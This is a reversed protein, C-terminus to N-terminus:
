VEKANRAAGLGMGRQVLSASPTRFGAVLAADLGTALRLALGGAAGELVLFGMSTRSLKVMGLASYSTM